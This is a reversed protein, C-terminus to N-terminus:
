LISFRVSSIFHISALNSIIEFFINPWNQAEENFLSSCLLASDAEPKVRAISQLLSLLREPNAPCDEALNPTLDFCRLVPLVPASAQCGQHCLCALLRLHEEIHIGELRELPLDETFFDKKVKM